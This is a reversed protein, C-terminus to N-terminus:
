LLDSILDENRLALDTLLERTVEKCKEYLIATQLLLGSRLQEESTSLELSSGIHSPIFSIEGKSDIFLEYRINKGFSIHYREYFDKYIKVRWEIVHSQLRKVLEIVTNYM